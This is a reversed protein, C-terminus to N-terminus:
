TLKMPRAMSDSLAVDRTDYDSLIREGFSFRNTFM